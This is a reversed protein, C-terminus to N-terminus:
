VSAYFFDSLGHAKIIQMDGSLIEDDPWESNPFGAISWQFKQQTLFEAVSASLCGGGPVFGAPSSGWFEKFKMKEKVIPIAGDEPWSIKETPIRVKSKLYMNSLDMNYILPLPPDNALKLAPELRESKKLNLLTLRQQPPLRSIDTQSLAVTLKLSPYKEL